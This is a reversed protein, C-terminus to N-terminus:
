ADFADGNTLHPTYSVANPDLYSAASTPIDELSPPLLGNIGGNGSLLKSSFPGVHDMSLDLPSGISINLNLDMGPMVALVEAVKSKLELIERDRIGLLSERIELQRRAEGLASFLDLKIRTEASLSNELYNNKEQLTLLSNKLQETDPSKQVPSGPLPSTRQRLSLVENETSKLREEVVKLDRRLQKVEAELNQRRLKCAENTCEGGKSSVANNGSRTLSNDETKKANREQALQAELSTRVKREEQLKKELSSLSTKDAQRASVVGFLKNQLGDNDHQLQTLEARASRESTNLTLIQNRLDNELQRNLQIENKLRKVDIELRQVYEDKHSAINANCQNEKSPKAKKEQKLPTCNIDKIYSSHINGNPIAGNGTSVSGNSLKLHSKGNSSHHLNSYVSKHSKVETESDFTDLDNLNRRRELYEADGTSIVGNSTPKSVKSANHAHEKSNSNNNKEENIVHDSKSNNSDNFSSEGKEPIRKSSPRSIFQRSLVTSSNSSHTQSSSLHTNNTSSPVSLSISSNFSEESKISSKSRETTAAIVQEEELMKKQKDYLEQQEEPLAEVLLKMYFENEKAVDKQKRLRIRYSMYSKFGFGLTVVPYGICHAAFPRCLDMHAPLHRLDKLRVSAEVYVFLFWLLVTPLCVGRETHWVYQVWVYTSAAFFLWHVPIFLYCIMDSTVTIFIFFVSFAFGQYKFSDYFSRIVLWIPWLFEFRFELIFDAMLIFAWFVFFKTYIFNNNGYLGETLKNRKIPRRAKVNDINRRKM